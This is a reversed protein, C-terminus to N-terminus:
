IKKYSAVVRTRLTAINMSSCDDQPIILYALIYEEFSDEKVTEATM